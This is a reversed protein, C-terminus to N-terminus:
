NQIKSKKKKKVLAHMYLSLLTGSSKCKTYYRKNSVIIAQPEKWKYSSLLVRADSLCALNISLTVVGKIRLSCFRGGDSFVICKWANRTWKCTQWHLVKSTSYNFGSPQPQYWIFSIKCGIFVSISGTSTWISFKMRHLQLVNDFICATWTHTWAEQTSQFTCCSSTITPSFEIVVCKFDFHVNFATNISIYKINKFM